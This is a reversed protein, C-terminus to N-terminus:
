SRPIIWKSYTVKDQSKSKTFQSILFIIILINVQDILGMVTKLDATYCSTLWRLEATMQQKDYRPWLHKKNKNNKLM